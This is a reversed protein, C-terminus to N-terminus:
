LCDTAAREQVLGYLVHYVTSKEIGLFLDYRLIINNFRLDNHIFLLVLLGLREKIEIRDVMFEEYKAKEEVPLNSTEIYRFISNLSSVYRSLLRVYEAYEYGCSERIRGGIENSFSVDLQKENIFYEGASEICKYFAYLVEAGYIYKGENYFLDADKFKIRALEDVHLKFLQFFGSEFNQIDIQKSQKEMIDKQGALEERTARLEERQAKLEQMQVILTCILGAFALGSFLANVAGFMDGFTGRDGVLSYIFPVSYPVGDWVAGNLFYLALAWVVLVFSFLFIVLTKKM